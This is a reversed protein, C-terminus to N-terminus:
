DYLTLIQFCIYIHSFSTRRGPISGPDCSHSDQMIGSCWRRAAQLASRFRRVSDVFAAEALRLAGIRISQGILVRCDIFAIKASSVSKVNLMSKNEQSKVYIRTGKNITKNLNLGRCPSFDFRRPLLQLSPERFKEM